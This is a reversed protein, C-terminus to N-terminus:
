WNEGVRVEGGGVRVVERWGWWGKSMRVPTFGSSISFSGEKRRETFSGLLPASSPPTDAPAEPSMGIDSWGLYPLYKLINFTPRGLSAIM